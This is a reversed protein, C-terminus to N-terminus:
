ISRTLTAIIAGLAPIFIWVSVLLIILLTGPGLREYTKSFWTNEKKLRISIYILLASVIFGPFPNFAIENNQKSSIFWILPAILLHMAIGVTGLGLLCYSITDRKAKNIVLGM